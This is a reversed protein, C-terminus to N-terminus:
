LYVPASRELRLRSAVGREVRGAFDAGRSATSADGATFRRPPSRKAAGCGSDTPSGDASGLMVRGVAEFRGTWCGSHVARRFTRFSPSLPYRCSDHVIKTPAWRLVFNVLLARIRRRM